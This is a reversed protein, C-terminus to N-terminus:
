PNAGEEDPNIKEMWTKFKRYAKDICDQNGLSCAWNVALKRLFVDLPQDNPQGDYGVRKYLPDILKRMYIKFNGYAAERKLMKNLYGMGSLAAAWPIYETEKDM